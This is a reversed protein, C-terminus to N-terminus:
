VWSSFSAKPSQSKPWVGPGHKALTAPGHAKTDKHGQAGPQTVGRTERQGVLGLTLALHPSVGGSDTQKEVCKQAGPTHVM